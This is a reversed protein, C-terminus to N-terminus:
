IRRGLTEDSKVPEPPSTLTSPQRRMTWAAALLLAIVAWIAFCVVPIWGAISVVGAGVLGVLVVLVFGLGVIRILTTASGVRSVFASDLVSFLRRVLGVNTLNAPPPAPVGRVVEAVCRVILRARRRVIENLRTKIESPQMPPVM